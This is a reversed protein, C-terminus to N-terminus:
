DDAGYLYGEQVLHELVHRIDPSVKRKKFTGQNIQREDVLSKILYFNEIGDNLMVEKMIGDIFLRCTTTTCSYALVVGEAVYLVGDGHIVEDVASKADSWVGLEEKCEENLADLPLPYEFRMRKSETVMKGFFEDFIIDDDLMENIADKVLQKAKLKVQDDLENTTGQSCINSGNNSNSAMADLLNPDTYRDLMKGEVAESINDMMKTLMEKASPARLGVSLTMCGDTLAIGRHGFKPPLYLVDGPELTLSDVLGNEQDEGWFELIRVDLGPTLGEIEEKTSITRKGVEWQKRGSMQILFVDYDDVHAGISGDKNSLSIQGDDRRWQPIMSFTKCIWESLPPHFRDVDNVVLTWKRDTNEYQKLQLPDIPGLELKWSDAAEAVHSILRSEADQDSALEMVEYWHPWPSTSIDSDDDTNQQHLVSKAESHFANRLLIPSTGWAKSTAFEQLFNSTYLEPIKLPVDQQPPVSFLKSLQQNERPTKCKTTFASICLWQIFIIVFVFAPASNSSRFSNKM